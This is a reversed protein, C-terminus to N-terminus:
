NNEENREPRNPCTGEQINKLLENSDTYIVVSEVAKRASIENLALEIATYEAASSSTNNFLRYSREFGDDFIFAAGSRGDQKKSGDVYCAIKTRHCATIHNNLITSWMEKPLNKNSNLINHVKSCINPVKRKWPPQQKM